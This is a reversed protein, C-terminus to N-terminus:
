YGVLIFPAWYYPSQYKDSNLLALKANRLARNYGEYDNHLHQDYFRIMLKSTAINDVEWLSVILNSAGAYQLARSLGVIGEGKVMKGLGTECASLTVLDANIKTNYIEGAYLSGDEGDSPTLFIKSLSPKSENVIGHTAFHLYKYKNLKGSKFFSESAEKKIKLDALGNLLFLYGIEKVEKKSDPLSVLNAENGKFNVPACLLIREELDQTSTTRHVLFTASYDYALAYDKILFAHDSYNEGKSNAPIFVEFPLTSTIGDPLIILTTINGLKKPILQSFLSKGFQIVKDRIDYKIANRFGIAEQEFNANRQLESAEIKRNSIQFLYNTKEGIFYSLILTEKGISAQIEAVTAIKHNYKLNFYEPYEKELRNIFVRYAGQYQFLLNKFKEQNKGSALQQEFFTIEARLSDETQMLESPIGSFNKAKTETIAELLTASKSRECFQFSKKLYYQKRFSQKSLTLALRIGSEYVDKAIASLRIKDDENHRTQRIFAILEDCQEYTNISGVLDRTNLTKAFHLRELAQAKYQLSKLLIDANFYDRIEPLDYNTTYEQDLLNAYVSKQFYEVAKGYSNQQKYIEGMWFYTNAIAPHRTGFLSIYMKLAQTQLLLSKDFKGEKLQILGTSSLTFAKNPHDGPHLENQTKYVSELLVYAEEFNEQDAYSFALNNAVLATKIHALGYNKEYIKEARHFYMLAQLPDDNQYILGLNNFSDGILHHEKDNLNTQRIALSQELYQRALDKNGNNLYVIGLDNLCTAKDLSNINEFLVKVRKLYGLALDNRGLRLYSEGKLTLVEGKLIIDDPFYQDIYNEINEALQRGDDPQGLLIKCESMKLNCQVYDKRKNFQVFQRSAEKYLLYAGEYDASEFAQHAKNFAEQGHLFIVSLLFSITSLIRM